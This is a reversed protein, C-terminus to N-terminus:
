CKRYEKRTGCSLPSRRNNSSQLSNRLKTTPAQTPKASSSTAYIFKQSNEAWKGELFDGVSKELNAQTVNRIRRSQLTVYRRTDPADEPAIPAVAYM